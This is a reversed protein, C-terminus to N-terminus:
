RRSHVGFTKAREIKVAETWIEALKWANKKMALGRASELGAQALEHRAIPDDALTKLKRTWDKADKAIWGIGHEKNIRVYEARDSGVCPIGLAAYELMKLWSKAANFKTDALPAVGIGLTAVAIPWDNIQKPGTAMIPVNENVGWANHVGKVDGIVAFQYGSQSLVNVSSGMSQLDNPHSHLSGAWGITANDFHPVDFYHEPIYNDFVFGRGHPAYRKLLAPTSVIVASADRCADLAYHWSHDPQPGQPHLMAYAPNSPHIATLDDDMDIAVAVGRQRILKVAQALNRHTTRQFVILDADQPIRVDVMVGNEDLAGALASDRQGPMVLAVDHGQEKLAIAPWIMRFHGCGHADAPFLYIKMSVLEESSRVHERRPPVLVM